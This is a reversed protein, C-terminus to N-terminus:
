FAKRKHEVWTHTVTGPTLGKTKKHQTVNFDAFLNSYGKQIKM